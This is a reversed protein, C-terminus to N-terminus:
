HTSYLRMLKLERRMVILHEINLIKDTPHFTVDSIHLWHSSLLYRVDMPWQKNYFNRNDYVLFNLM